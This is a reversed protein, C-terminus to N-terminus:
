LKREYIAKYTETDIQQYYKQLMRYAQRVEQDTLNEIERSAIYDGLESDYRNFGIGDLGKSWSDWRTDRSLQRCVELIAAKQEISISDQYIVTRPYVKM